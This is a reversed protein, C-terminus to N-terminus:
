PLAIAPGCQVANGDGALAAPGRSGSLYHWLVGSSGGDEGDFGGDM